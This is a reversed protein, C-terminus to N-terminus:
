VERGDVFLGVFLAPFLRRVHWFAGEAKGQRAKGQRASASRADLTMRMGVGSWPLDLKVLM